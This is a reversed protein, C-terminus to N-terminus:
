KIIIALHAASTFGISKLDEVVSKITTANHRVTRSFHSIRYIFDEKINESTLGIVASVFRYVSCISVFFSYNEFITLEKNFLPMELDMFANLILNRYAYDGGFAENFKKLGDLYKEESIGNEDYLPSLDIATLNDGFFKVITNNAAKLKINYNPKIEEVSKETAKNFLQPRLESIIKPIEVVKNTEAIDSIKKMALACLILSSEISRKKNSLIEFFFNFLEVRFFLKPYKDIDKQTDCITIPTDSTINRAPSIEIEMSRPDSFLLEIVAPCSPSCSRLLKNEHRILNRPYIQCVGSLYEHGLEKQISCLGSENEFPCVGDEKLKINYMNETEEFKTFSCKAKDLLEESCGSYLLREYEEKKWDIRWNHCCSVPCKDAICSFKEFYRPQIYYNM